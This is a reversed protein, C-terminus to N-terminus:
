PQVEYVQQAEAAAHVGARGAHGGHFFGVRLGAEPRQTKLADPPQWHLLGRSAFRM